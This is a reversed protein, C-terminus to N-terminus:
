KKNNTKNIQKDLAFIDVISIPGLILSFFISIMMILFYNENFLKETDKKNSSLEILWKFYNTPSMFYIFVKLVWSVLGCLLWIYVYEMKGIIGAVVLYAV